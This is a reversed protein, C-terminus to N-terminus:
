GMASYQIIIQGEDEPPAPMREVIKRMGLKSAVRVALPEPIAQLGM